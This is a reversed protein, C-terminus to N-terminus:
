NSDRKTGEVLIRLKGRSIKGNVTRPLEEVARIWSPQKFKSLHRNMHERMRVMAYDVSSNDSPVFFLAPREMGTVDAASLVTVDSAIKSQQGVQEVDRLHVWQGSVKILDDERGQHHWNGTSDCRYLDGTVFHNGLLRASTEQEKNAYLKFMFPHSIRLVAQELADASENERDALVTEVGPLPMGVSELPTSDSNGALALFLTESCGYVNIIGKGVTRLWAEQIQSPLHEGASVYHDVDSLSEIEDPELKGLLGRYITPVSFVVKLPQTAIIRHVESTTVWEPHLYVTAGIMLPALLGNALAYAFSLRSTCFIIDGPVIKLTDTHFHCCASINRHTHVIGKPRSTSGSSYVWLCEDSADRPITELPLDESDDLVRETLLIPTLKASVTDRLYLLLDDSDSDHVLAVAESDKVVSGLEENDLRTSVAVAVAGINIVALYMGVFEATDSCRFVVRDGIDIGLQRLEVSNLQIHRALEAYTWSGTEWKLAIQPGLESLRDSCLLQAVINMNLNTITFNVFAVNSM